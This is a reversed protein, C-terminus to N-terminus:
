RKKKSSRKASRNGGRPADAPAATFVAAHPSLTHNAVAAPSTSAEEEMAQPPDPLGEQIPKLDKAEWIHIPEQRLGPLSACAPDDFEYFKRGDPDGGSVTAAVAGRTFRAQICEKMPKAKMWQVWVVSRLHFKEIRKLKTTLLEWRFAVGKRARFEKARRADREKKSSSEDRSNDRVTKAPESTFHPHCPSEGKEQGKKVPSIRLGHLILQVGETRALRAGQRIDQWQRATISGHKTSPSSM